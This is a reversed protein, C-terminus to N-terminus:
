AFTCDDIMAVCADVATVPLMHGRDPMVTIRAHPIADAIVETHPRYPLIRDGEGFLVSVPCKIERYRPIQELLSQQAGSLDHSAALFASSLMSLAGGYRHAFDASPTEPKFIANVQRRGIRRQILPSFGKSVAIRLAKSRLYWSTFQTSQIDLPATLPCILALGQVREPAHIALNLSIGGGMSHGVFIARDIAEMAMWQAIMNAQETFSPDTKGFRKSHGSGPRDLCFVKYKKALADELDSFNHLNGALGHVLVVAQGEGKVTWHITGGSVQTFQGQAPFRARIANDRLATCTVFGLLALVVTAILIILVTM